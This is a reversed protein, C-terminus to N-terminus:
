KPKAVTVSIANSKVILNTYPDIRELSVTYQNPASLDAYASLVFEDHAKGGPAVRQVFASGGAFCRMEGKKGKWCNRGSAIAEGVPTLPAAKGNQDVAEFTYIPPGSVRVIQIEKDAVNTLEVDIAVESGPAATSQTRSIRITFAPRQRNESLSEQGVWSAGWISIMALAASLM